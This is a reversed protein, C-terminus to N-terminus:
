PHIVVCKTETMEEVAYRPGEKGLGSSGLGGYPMLDARYQPGGGGSGPGFNLVGADISESLRVMRSLDRTYVGAALGYRTDNAMAAAEEETEFSRLGCAPGFLEEDYAKMGPEVGDLLAPTLLSGDREGGCVRTAGAEVAENLWQEVREADSRRILPGVDTAEDAPDGTKLQSFAEVLLDRFEAHASREVLVRQLSICVQGANATAQKALLSATAPLDADAFVVAPCNSGLELTVKKVGATAIIKAGVADSGTFTIKRVRPDGCIAEGLEGGPGTLCTIAQEPLGCELLLRTLALASLPTVGAPKLLVANGAAIAPGVKHCVLNLPFNFPTIAAVVGCPVRRTFALKGAGNPAADIPVVEGGLREAEIASLRLTEVARNAEGVAEGIPKGGEACIRRGWEEPNAAIADSAHFLIAARDRPNMARMAKAGDTLTALAADVEAADATPVTDIVAGDYPNTVESPKGPTRWDGHSFLPQM